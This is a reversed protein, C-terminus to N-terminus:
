TRTELQEIFAMYREISSPDGRNTQMVGRQYQYSFLEFWLNLHCAAKNQEFLALAVAAVEATALQGEQVAKRVQYRSDFVREIGVNTMAKIDVLQEALADVNISLMPLHHLYASKRYMKKAQRWTADLLILLPTKDTDVIANLQQQSELVLQGPNAYDKPFVVFPQYQPDSILTLLGENVDTRHWLFAHTDDIVDAILRGTNSPKLVEDDYMLLAFAVKTDSVQRWQCICYQINLRCLECRQTKAGRAKFPRTSISKRYQYLQQVAHM